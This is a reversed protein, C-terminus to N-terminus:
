EPPSTMDAMFEKEIWGEAELQEWVLKMAEIELCLWALRRTQCHTIKSSKFHSLLITKGEELGDACRLIRIFRYSDTFPIGTTKCGSLYFDTWDEFTTGIRSRDLCREYAVSDEEVSMGKKVGM